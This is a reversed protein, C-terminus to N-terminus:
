RWTLRGSMKAFGTPGVQFETLTPILAGIFFMGAGIVILTVSVTDQGRIVGVAVM